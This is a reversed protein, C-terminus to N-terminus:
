EEEGGKKEDIVNKGEPDEIGFMVAKIRGSTIIYVLIIFLAFSIVIGGLFLAIIVVELLTMMGIIEKIFNYPYILIIIIKEILLKTLVKKRRNINKRM